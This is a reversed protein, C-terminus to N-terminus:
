LLGDPSGVEKLNMKIVHYTTCLDLEEQLM